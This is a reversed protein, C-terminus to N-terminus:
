IYVADKRDTRTYCGKQLHRQLRVCFREYISGPIRHCFCYTLTYQVIGPPLKDPWLDKLFRMDENQIFWPLRMISNTGERSGYCLDLMSLIVTMTDFLKDNFNFPRWICRLLDSHFIGTQLFSTVEADFESKTPFLKRFIEHEYKLQELLDHRFLSQLVSVLFTTDHFIFNSLAKHQQGYWLVMGSDHLFQLCQLPEKHSTLFRSRLPLCQKLLCQYQPETVFNKDKNRDACMKSYVKAWHKPIVSTDSRTESFLFHKIEDVGKMDLSSALFYHFNNANLLPQDNRSTMSELSAVKRWFSQEEEFWTNIKGKLTELKENIENETCLDCQTAVICISGSKMHSAATTLWKTVLKDHKSENYESLKVAVVAVQKTSKLFLPCTMEYIDHGGFDAIKLLVDEQKVELTDVVVTRAAPDILVSSGEKISHILSSKGAGTKGMLTVNLISCNFVNGVRLARYYEMCANPGHQVIENPPKVFRVPRLGVVKEFRGETFINSRQSWLKVFDEDLEEIPLDTALVTSVKKMHFIVTPFSKIECHSINLEELHSCRRIGKPLRTIPNTSIDLKQLSKLEFLFLPLSTFHNASIDLERLRSFPSNVQTEKCNVLDCNSANLRELNPLNM